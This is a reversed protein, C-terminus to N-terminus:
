NVKGGLTSSLELEIWKFAARISIQEFIPYLSFHYSDQDVVEHM